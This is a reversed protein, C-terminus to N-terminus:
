KIVEFVKNLVEGIRTEYDLALEKAINIRSQDEDINKAIEIQIELPPLAIQYKSVFNVPLRQLGGTGTM